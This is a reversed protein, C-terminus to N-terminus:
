NDTLSIITSERKGTLSCAAETPKEGRAYAKYEKPDAIIFGEGKMRRDTLRKM